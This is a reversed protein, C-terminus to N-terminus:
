RPVGEDLTTLLIDLAYGYAAEARTFAECYEARTLGQMDWDGDFAVQPGGHQDFMDFAHGPERTARLGLGNLDHLVFGDSRVPQALLWRYVDASRGNALWDDLAREEAVGVLVTLQGRGFRRVAVIRGPTAPDRAALTTVDRRQLALALREAADTTVTAGSCSASLALSALM